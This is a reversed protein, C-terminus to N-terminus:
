SRKFILVHSICDPNVSPARFYAMYSGADREFVSMFAYVDLCILLQSICITTDYRLFLTVFYRCEERIQLEKLEEHSGSIQVEPTEANEVVIIM